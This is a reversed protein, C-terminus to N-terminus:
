IHEKLTQRRLILMHNVEETSVAELLESGTVIPIHLINAASRLKRYNNEVEEASNPQNPSARAIARAITQEIPPLWVLLAMNLTPGYSTNFLMVEDGPSQLWERVVKYNAADTKAKLAPDLWWKGSGPWGITDRIVHDGDVLQGNSHKVLWSKGAGSPAMILDRM